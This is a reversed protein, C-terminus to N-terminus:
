SSVGAAEPPAIGASSGVVPSLAAVASSAGTEACAVEVAQHSRGLGIQSKFYLILRLALEYEQSFECSARVVFIHRGPGIWMAIASTQDFGALADHLETNGLAQLFNSWSRVRQKQLRSEKAGVNPPFLFITKEVLQDLTIQAIEWKLSETTGLLYLIWRADKTWRKVKEQWVSDDRYARAAGLRPIFDKRSGLAIFPGFRFFLESLADEFGVRVPKDDKQAMWIKRGDDKFSRLFVIPPRQDYELLHDASKKRTRALLYLLYAIIAAPGAVTWKFIKEPHHLPTSSPLAEYIAFGIALLAVIVIMTWLGIQVLRTVIRRDPRREPPTTQESSPGSLMTNTTEIVDRLNAGAIPGTRDLQDALIDDLSSRDTVDAAAQTGSREQARGVMSVIVLAAFALAGLGVLWPGFWGFSDSGNPLMVAAAFGLVFVAIWIGAAVATSKARDRFSKRQQFITKSLDFETITWPIAMINQVRLSNRGAQHYYQRSVIPKTQRFQTVGGVIRNSGPQRADGSHIIGQLLFFGPERLPSGPEL